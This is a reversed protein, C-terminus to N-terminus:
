AAREFMSAIAKGVANEPAHNTTCDWRGCRPCRVPQHGILDLFFTKSAARQARFTEATQAQRAEWQEWEEPTIKRAPPAGLPECFEHEDNVITVRAPPGFPDDLDLFSSTAM